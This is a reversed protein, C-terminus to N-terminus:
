EKSTQEATSDAPTTKQKDAENKVLSGDENRIFSGGSQPIQEDVPLQKTDKAM